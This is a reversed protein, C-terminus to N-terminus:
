GANNVRKLLDVKQRFSSALLRRLAPNAPDTRIAEQLEAIALDITRLDRELARSLEPRLTARQLEFHNLLAQAEEQYAHTSDVVAILSIGSDPVMTVIPSDVAAERDRVIWFTMVGAALLGGVAVMWRRRSPMRMGMGMRGPMAVVKKEEIRARISPWLEDVEPPTALPASMSEDVRKMLARIRGVDASCEACERAHEQLPALQEAALSGEALGHREDETLHRQSTVNGNGNM